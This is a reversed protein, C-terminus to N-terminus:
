NKYELVSFIPRHDSLSTPINYFKVTKFDRSHFIYDIRLLGLTRFFTGGTQFKSSNFSDNLDEGLITGYVYSLPTDNFDGCIIVPYRTTDIIQRIVKAQEARKLFNEAMGSIITSLGLGYTSYYGTTQLHNNIIRVTDGNIDIDAWLAGNASDEFNVKESRIIPYKSFIAMGIDKDDINISSNPLFDFEGKLENLNFYITPEFEQMALIEVNNTQMLSAVGPANMERKYSFYNVNFSSVILRNGPIEVTSSGPFNMGIILSFHNYNMVLSALPILIWIKRRFLWNFFLFLNFAIILPAFTNAYQVWLYTEPDLYYAKSIIISLVLSIAGSIVIWGRFFIKVAKVGM